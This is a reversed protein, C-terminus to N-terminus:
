FRRLADYLGWAGLTFGVLGAFATYGVMGWFDRPREARRYVTKRGWRSLHTTEGRRIDHVLAWVGGPTVVLLLFLSLGLQLKPSM